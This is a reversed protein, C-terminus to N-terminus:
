GLKLEAELAAPETGEVEAPLIEREQVLYSEKEAAPVAGTAQELYPVEFPESGPARARYTAYSM